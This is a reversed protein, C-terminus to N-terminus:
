EEPKPTMASGSWCITSSPGSSEQTRVEEMHRGMGMM